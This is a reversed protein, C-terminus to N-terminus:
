PNQSRGTEILQIQSAGPPATLMFDGAPRDSNLKWERFELDLSYEDLPREIRIRLPLYYNQVQAFSSYFINSVLNGEQNYILQRAVAMEARDIWLKRLPSLIHNAKLCYLNLVYYKTTQDQEEELAIYVDPASLEIQYPLIAELIHAPRATFALGQTEGKVLLEKASNHGSYMKNDRPNWFSFEDGRSALDFVTTKTLPNQVVMRLMDPRALLLYGPASHYEQLVGSDRKGMTITVKMSAATLTTIQSGYAKLQSLLQDLTASKASLIKSPVDVRVTHKISCATSLLLSALGAAFVFTKWGRDHIKTLSAIEQIERM